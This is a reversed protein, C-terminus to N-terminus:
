TQIDLSALLTRLQAPSLDELGVDQSSVPEQTGPQGVSELLARLQPASMDSLDVTEVSGAAGSPAQRVGRAVAGAGVVIVLAAAIKLWAPQSWVSPRAPARAEAHLRTVVAQATREVDLREAARTGLRQALEQLKADHFTADDKM